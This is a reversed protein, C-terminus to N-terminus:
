LFLCSSNWGFFLDCRFLMLFSPFLIVHLMSECVLIVCNLLLFEMFIILSQFLSIVKLSIKVLLSNTEPSFSLRIQLPFVEQSQDEAVFPYRADEEYTKFDNHRYFSFLLICLHLAFDVDKIGFPLLTRYTTLLHLNEMMCANLFLAQQHFLTLWVLATM